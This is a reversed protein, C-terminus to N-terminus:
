VCEEGLECEKRVVHLEYRYMGNMLEEKVNRSEKRRKNRVSKKTENKKVM